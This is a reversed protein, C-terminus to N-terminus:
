GDKGRENYLAGNRRVWSDFESVLVQGYRAGGIFRLPLPDSDRRALEYLRDASVHGERALDPVTTWVTM